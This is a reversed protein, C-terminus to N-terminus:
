PEAAVDDPQQLRAWPTYGRCLALSDAPTYQPNERLSTLLRRLGLGPWHRRRIGDVDIMVPTPGTAADDFVIWNSAKADFHSYGLSEITRLLRGVRRLLNERAGASLDDLLTRNLHPGPVRECILIADVVYGAVRRQMVLMPWAVPLGRAIMAWSKKWARLPRSGRGIENLYRYWYRRRPRKVIVDIDRGCVRVVAALVEGSRSRKLVPLEGSEIKQWLAPWATEWDDSDVVLRSVASTAVAARSRRYFVGAWDDDARLRGFYRNDRTVQEAGRRWLLTSVPNRTPLPAGAPGLARWGRLLDTRTAFRRASHWLLMLDRLPFGGKNVAYADLLVLAGARGDYPDPLLFNGLHLDDHGYGALALRRVLDIVDDVLQRHHLAPQATVSGNSLYQELTITPEIAELIVADGTRGELNFGVMAAVARPAPIKAESAM